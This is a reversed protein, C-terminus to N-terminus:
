LAGGPLPLFWAALGGIAIAVGYPLTQAGPTALTFREGYRGLTLLHVALNKTSWLLPVIVGRRAADALALAGGVLGGYVIVALVGMPGVFAGVATFFKADGAGIGGLAFLPFSLILALGAGALSATIALEKLILSMALALMLGTITVSNPIRRDRLDWYVAAGLVLAFILFDPTLWHPLM